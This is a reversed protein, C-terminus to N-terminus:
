VRKKLAVYMDSVMFYGEGEELYIMFADNHERNNIKAPGNMARHNASPHCKSVRVSSDCSEDSRFNDLGM